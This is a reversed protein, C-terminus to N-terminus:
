EDQMDKGQSGIQGYQCQQMSVLCKRVHAAELALWCCHELHTAYLQIDSLGLTDIFTRRREPSLKHCLQQHADMPRAQGISLQCLGNLGDYIPCANFSGRISSIKDLMGTRQLAGDKPCNKIESKPSHAQM